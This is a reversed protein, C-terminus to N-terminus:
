QEQQDDEEYYGVQNQDMEEGYDMMQENQDMDQGEEFMHQDMPDQNNMENVIEPENTVDQQMQGEYEEDGMEEGEDEM